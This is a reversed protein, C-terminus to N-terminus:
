DGKYICISHAIGLILIGTDTREKTSSTTSTFGGVLQRSIINNPKKLLKGINLLSNSKNKNSTSDSVSSHSGHHSGTETINQLDPGTSENVTTYHQGNWLERPSILLNIVSIQSIDALSLGSLCSWGVTHIGSSAASWSARKKSVRIYPRSAQLDKDFSRKFSALLQDSAGSLSNRRSQTATVSSQDDGRSTVSAPGASAGERRTM